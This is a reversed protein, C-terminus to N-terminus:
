QSDQKQIDFVHLAPNSEFANPKRIASPECVILRSGDFAISSAKACNGGSKSFVENISLRAYPRNRWPRDSNKLLEKMHYLALVKDYKKAWYGKGSSCADAPPKGYDWAIGQEGVAINGVFILTSGILALGNWDSAPNPLLDPVSGSPYYLLCKAKLPDKKTSAEILFAAPGWSGSAQGAMGQAGVIIHRGLSLGYECLRHSNTHKGTVNVLGKVSGDPNRIAFCPDNRGSVNYTDFYPTVIRGDEMFMVQGMQKATSSRIQALIDALRDGAPNFWSGIPKCLYEEEWRNIQGLTQPLDLAHIFYSYAHSTIWLKGQGWSIRGTTYGTRKYETLRGESMMPVIASGSYRIQEPKLKPLSAIEHITPQPRVPKKKDIDRGSHRPNRTEAKKSTKVVPSVMDHGATKRDETNLSGKNPSDGPRNITAPNIKSEQGLTLALPGDPLEFTWDAKKETRNKFVRADGGNRSVIARNVTNGYIEIDRTNKFRYEIANPYDSDIVVTNGTVQVNTANCLYIGTDRTSHIRNDQIISGTHPSNDLGLIIGRDCYLITNGVIRTNKSDNWFHIAGETMGQDRTRIHRFVNDKVVWNEGHHIDIGGTYSQFAFGGTFEFTCGEVLGYDTHRDPRDPDFSGKLMQERIDFFRLNQLFIHDADDEGHIQIGHNSVDGISLNRIYVRSGKISFINRVKGRGGQGKLITKGADGSLGKYTIRNGDIIIRRPLTYAGNQILVTLDDPQGPGSTAMLGEVTSVITVEAWVGQVLCILFLYILCINKFPTM